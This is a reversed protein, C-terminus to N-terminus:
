HFLYNLIHAWRRLRWEHTWVSCCFEFMFIGLLYITAVLIHLM